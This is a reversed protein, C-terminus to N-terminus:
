DADVVQQRPAPRQPEVQSGAQEGVGVREAADGLDPQAHATHELQESGVSGAKGADPAARESGAELRPESGFRVLPALKALTKAGIGRVRGLDAAGRFGGQRARMAVIEEALRPGVGPLLTLELASARNVDVPRGDRLADGEGTREGVIPPTHRLRSPAPAYTQELRRSLVLASGLGLLCVLAFRAAPTVHM